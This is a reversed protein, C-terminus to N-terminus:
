GEIEKLLRGLELKYEKKWSVIEKLVKKLKKDFQDLQKKNAISFGYNSGLRDALGALRKGVDEVTKELNEYRADLGASQRGFAEKEGAFMDKLDSKLRAATGAMDKSVRLAENELRSSTSAAVKDISHSFDELNREMALGKKQLGDVVSALSHLGKVEAKLAANEERIAHIDHKLSQRAASFARVNERSMRSEAAEMGDKIEAGLVDLQKLLRMDDRESKDSIEQSMSDIKAQLAADAEERKRIGGALTKMDASLSKLRAVDEALLDAKGRISNIDSLFEERMKATVASNEKGLESSVLKVRQDIKKDIKELENKIIIRNREFRDKFAEVNETVGAETRGIREEISEAQKVLGALKGRLHKLNEVDGSMSTLGSDLSSIKDSIAHEFDKHNKSNADINRELMNLRTELNKRNSNLDSKLSSGAKQLKRDVAKEFSSMAARSTALQKNLSAQNEQMELRLAGLNKEDIQRLESSFSLVKEDLDASLKKMGDDIESKTGSMTNRVQHELKEMDLKTQSLNAINEQLRGDLGAIDAEFRRLAEIDKGLLLNRERLMNVKSDLRKDLASMTAATKRVLAVKLAGLKKDFGLTVNDIREGAAADGKEMRRVSGKIARGLKEERVNLDEALSSIRANTKELSEKNSREMSLVSEGLVKDRSRLKKGESELRNLREVVPNVQNNIFYLLRKGAEGYVYSAEKLKNVLYENRSKLSANERNLAKVATRQHDADERLKKLEIEVERIEDVMRIV